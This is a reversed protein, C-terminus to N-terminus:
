VKWRDRRTKESNSEDKYILNTTDDLVPTRKGGNQTDENNITYKWLIAQEICYIPYYM